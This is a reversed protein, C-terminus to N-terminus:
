LANGSGRPEQILGDAVAGLAWGVFRFPLKVTEV